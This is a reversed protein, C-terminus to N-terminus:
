NNNVSLVALSVKGQRVTFSLSTAKGAGSMLAPRGGVRWAIQKAGKLWVPDSGKVATLLKPTLKDPFEVTYLGAAGKVSARFALKKADPSWM